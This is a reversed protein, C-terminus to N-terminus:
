TVAKTGAALIIAGRTKCSRELRRIEIVCEHPPRDTSDLINGTVNGLKLGRVRTPHSTEM